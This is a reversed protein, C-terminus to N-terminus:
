LLKKPLLSKRSTEKAAKARNTRITTSRKKVIRELSPYRFRSPTEMTRVLLM